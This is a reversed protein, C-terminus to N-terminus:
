GAEQGYPEGEMYRMEVYGAPGFEKLIDDWYLSEWVIENPDRFGQM